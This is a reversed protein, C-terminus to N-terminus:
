HIQLEGVGPSVRLSLSYRAHDFNDSYYYRGHREYGRPVEVSSLFLFKSVALKVGAERPLYLTTEGVDLDIDAEAKELMEGRFDITMEGIGGNITAERFRANGLNHIRTEGIKTNIQLEHMPVRNAESFDVRVEGAWTTLDLGETSLGGFDLDVEGAKIDAELSVAVGTPLELILRSENNKSDKVWSKKELDVRWEGEDADFDSYAAFADETYIATVRAEGTASAEFRVEGADIRVVVRLSQLREVSYTREFRVTNKAVSARTGGLLICLALFLFTKKM